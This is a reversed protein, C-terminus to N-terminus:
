LLRAKTGMRSIGVGVLGVVLTYMGLLLLTTHLGFMDILMGWWPLVIGVLISSLFSGTSSMTGRQERTVEKQSLASLIPDRFAQGMAFIFMFTLGLLSHISSLIIMCLSPIFIMLLLSLTSGIRKLIWHAYFSVVAMLASAIAAVIGIAAVDVGISVQFPQSINQGFVLRSTTLALGIIIFGLLHNNRLTLLVGTKINHLYSSASIEKKIFSWRVHYICISSLAVFFFALAYPLQVNYAYLFTGIPAAVMTSLLGVSQYRGQVKPFDEHKGQQHLLEYLLSSNAGSQLSSGFAAVIMGLLFGYFNTSFFLIAFFLAEIFLGVYVSKKHGFTDAVGGTPIELLALTIMFVSFLVGIETQTLKHSLFYLTFTASAMGGFGYLFNALYIKNIERM